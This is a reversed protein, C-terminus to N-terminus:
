TTVGLIDLIKAHLLTTWAAAQGALSDPDAYKTQAGLSVSV